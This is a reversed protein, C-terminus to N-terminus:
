DIRGVFNVSSDGCECVYFCQDLNNYNLSPEISVLRMRAGYSPCTPAHPAIPSSSYDPRHPSPM